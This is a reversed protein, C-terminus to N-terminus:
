PNPHIEKAMDLFAEPNGGSEPLKSPTEQPKPLDFKSETAKQAAEAGESTKDIEAVAFEKSLEYDADVNVKPKKQKGTDIEETLRQADFSTTNDLDAM